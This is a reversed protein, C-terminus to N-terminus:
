LMPCWSKCIFSNRWVTKLGSRDLRFSARFNETSLLDCYIAWCLIGMPYGMPLALSPENREAICALRSVLSKILRFFYLLVFSTNIILYSLKKPTLRFCSSKSHHHRHYQLHYQYQQCSSLSYTLKTKYIPTPLFARPQKRNWSLCPISNRTLKDHIFSKRNGPIMYTSETYFQYVDHIGINEIDTSERISIVLALLYINWLRFCFTM